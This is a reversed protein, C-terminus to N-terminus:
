GNVYRRPKERNLKMPVVQLNWPVHLGCVSGGRLPVIHDVEWKVLGTNSQNRLDRLHYIEDIMWRQDESLWKPKAQECARSRLTSYNAYKGLNRKRYEESAQKRKEPNRKIWLSKSVDTKEKNKLSWEKKYEAYLRNAKKNYCTKSCYKRGIFEKNCEPCTKM